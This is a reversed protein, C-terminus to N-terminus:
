SRTRFLRPLRAMPTRAMLTRSYDAQSQDAVWYLVLDKYFNLRISTDTGKELSIFRKDTMQQRELHM